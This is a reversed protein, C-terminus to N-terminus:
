AEAVSPRSGCLSSAARHRPPRVAGPCTRAGGGGLCPRPVRPQPRAFLLSPTPPLGTALPRRAGFPKPRGESLPPRRPRRRSQRGFMWPARPSYGPALSPQLCCRPTVQLRRGLRQGSHGGGLAFRPLLAPLLGDPFLGCPLPALRCPHPARPQSATPVQGSLALLKFPRTPRARSPVLSFSSSAAAYRVHM